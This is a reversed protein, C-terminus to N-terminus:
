EMEKEDIILIPRYVYKLLWVYTSLRLCFSCNSLVALKGSRFLDEMTKRDQTELGAHHVGVGSMVLDSLKREQIKSAAM